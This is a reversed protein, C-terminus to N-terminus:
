RLIEIKYEDDEEDCDPNPSRVFDGGNWEGFVQPGSSTLDFRRAECECM